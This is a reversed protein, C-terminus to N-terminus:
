EFRFTEVARVAYSASLAATPVALLATLLTGAAAVTAMSTDLWSAMAHGVMSSHSLIAPLAVVGFAISYGTFALLSPVVARRSRSIRVAEFRPFAAGVGAALPGACATLVLASAGLTAVAPLDQPGALALAVTALVTLPVGVLAAAAVHGWVLARGPRAGLLTAPLVSGERGLVNLAFLAGVIWAGSLLVWLPFSGGVSGERVADTVPGVLLFLPYLAFSVTIPARRTRQWDALVVGAVPRPLVAELSSRGSPVATTSEREVHVGDAYWLWAAFRPLAVWCVALFAGSALLAGVARAVSAGSVTGLFLLDGYWAVPTPELLHYLPALVTGFSQTVLLGFYAVGLLGLLVTRLRTLLRSRVGTNRVALALLFGGAVGTALVAGGTVLALPVVLLSGAGTAFALAGLTLFLGAPVGWLVAEAFLLGGLLERHSVTTLLGDLNDPRLSTAYARYGAFGVVFAWAYALAQRAYVVPATVEGAAIATGLLYLGFVGFSLMPVAFLAVFAIAVLQAANGRLVRARRRLEVVGITRVHSLGTM